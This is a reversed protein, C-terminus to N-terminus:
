GTKRTGAVRDAIIAALLTVLVPLLWGIGQAALPLQKFLEPVLQDFGAAAFGDVVGFILTIAMTPVFIRRPSVWLRDLLSLAVLVIALPYLGVLVPVS